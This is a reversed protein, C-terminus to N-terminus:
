DRIVLAITSLGLRWLSDGKTYYVDVPGVTKSPTKARKWTM